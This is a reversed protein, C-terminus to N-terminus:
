GKPPPLPRLLATRAIKELAKTRRMVFESGGHMTALEKAGEAIGEMVAELEAVPKLLAPREANALQKAYDSTAADEFALKAASPPYIANREAWQAAETELPSHTQQNM